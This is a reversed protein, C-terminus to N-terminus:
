DEKKAYKRKVEVEKELDEQSISSPSFCCVDVITFPCKSCSDNNKICIRRLEEITVDKVKKKPM